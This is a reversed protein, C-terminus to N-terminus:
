GTGEPCMASLACGQPLNSRAMCSNRIRFEYLGRGNGEPLQDIVWRHLSKSKTCQGIGTAL